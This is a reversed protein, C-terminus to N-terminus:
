VKYTTHVTSLTRLKQEIISTTYSKMNVCLQPYLFTVATNIM